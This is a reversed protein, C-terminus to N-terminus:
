GHDNGHDAEESEEGEDFWETDQWTGDDHCFHERYWHGDDNRVPITFSDFPGGYTPVYKGGKGAERLMMFFRMGTVPCKEPVGEPRYIHPKGKLSAFRLEDAM